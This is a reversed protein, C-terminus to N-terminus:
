GLPTSSTTSRERPGPFDTIGGGFRQTRRGEPLVARDPAPRNASCEPQDFVPGLLRAQGRQRRLLSACSWVHHAYEQQIALQGAPCSLAAM